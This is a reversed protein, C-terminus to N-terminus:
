PVPIPIDVSHVGGIRAQVETQDVWRRPGPAEWKDVNFLGDEPGEETIHFYQRAAYFEVDPFNCHSFLYVRALGAGRGLNKNGEAIITLNELKHGKPCNLYKDRIPKSGVGDVGCCLHRLM